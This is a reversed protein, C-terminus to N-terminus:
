QGLLILIKFSLGPAKFSLSQCSVDWLNNILSNLPYESYVNM